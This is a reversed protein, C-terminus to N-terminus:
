LLYDHMFQRALAAVDDTVQRLQRSADIVVFRHEEREALQLYCARVRNFFEDREVEFRDPTSRRNAREMGVEVPADLLVTLDPWLDGHVWAALEDVQQMPIGRGAGQYARSSDTFRDCLVWTGAELAPRIVNDVHLSRAAFILLLEAIDSMAEESHEAVIGRIKEANPTGGPERTKLIAHGAAEVCDAFVDITTSKGVGEIGEFSIFRGRDM